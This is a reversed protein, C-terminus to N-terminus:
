SREHLPDAQKQKRWRLPSMGNKQVFRKYFYPYDSYGCAAAIESLPKSTTELLYTARKLKLENVYQVPSTGFEQKFIRLVYNKSYHLEEALASLSFPAGLNKEMYEAMAEAMPSREPKKPLSLLLRLFLYQLEACPAKQHSAADLRTMAEFLREPEFHGSAALAEPADSWEGEFHAYLYQPADSALRGEQYRNKRQIYYEGARVEREEGDESFRLVGAFVLLLVNDTCFRTIHHEKEEFFRFSAYKCCTPKGLDVGLMPEEKNAFDSGENYRTQTIKDIYDEM